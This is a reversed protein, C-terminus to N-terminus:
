GFDNRTAKNSCVGSAIIWDNSTTCIYQQGNVEFARNNGQHFGSDCLYWNGSCLLDGRPRYHSKGTSLSCDGCKSKPMPGWSRWLIDQPCDGPKDGCDGCYAGTDSLAGYDHDLIINNNAGTSCRDERGLWGDEETVEIGCGSGGGLYFQWFENEPNDIKVGITGGSTPTPTCGAGCDDPCTCGDEGDYAFCRGDGCGDEGLPVKAHANSSLIVLILFIFLGIYVSNKKNLVSM